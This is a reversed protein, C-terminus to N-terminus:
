GLKIGCSNCFASKTDINANCNPCVRKNKISQIDEYLRAIEESKESIADVLNRTNDDLDANNKILEYYIRGLDAYDKERKSKLSAINFKQKEITVVEDTKKCAVDFVEKTKTIADDLFGM